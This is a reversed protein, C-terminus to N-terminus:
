KTRKQANTVEATLTQTSTTIIIESGIAFEHSAPPRGPSVSLSGPSTSATSQNTVSTASIPGASTASAVMPSATVIAYGRRLVNEPNLSSLIKNTEALHRLHRDLRQLIEQKADQLQQHNESIAVDLRGLLERHLNSLQLRLHSIVSRRDPSLREAANSPTSARVDAALDALSEDIEHGIGTIIPIRSAAIARALREDNFAALDDASGGGRLIAIIEVDAHQNFYDLARVIQEAAPLGQVQTNITKINLDGWRNDLIKLFDIYGAANVSSIVGIKTLNAPLPRKKAPDFLGEAALKQKLIEFSKKINGEGVPLIQRITLSFRGWNTVKPIARVRVKMGDSLAIGLQALPMFCNLSNDGEKLDFFVWKGQNIKFSAVEGEILVNEFETELTFNCQEIFDSVTMPKEVPLPSPNDAVRLWGDFGKFEM